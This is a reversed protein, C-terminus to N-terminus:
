LKHCHREFISKVNVIPRVEDASAGTFTDSILPQRVVNPSDLGKLYDSLVPFTSPHKSKYHAIFNGTSYEDGKKIEDCEM